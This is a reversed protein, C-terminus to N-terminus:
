GEQVPPMTAPQAHALVEQAESLTAPVRPLWTLSTQALKQLNEVSYLASDAVLYTPTASTHLQAIHDSVVQGFATGDHSHGSLPQMLVPSGAQHEVVLEVM